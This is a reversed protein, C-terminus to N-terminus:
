VFNYSEAASFVQMVIPGKRPFILERGLHQGHAVEPLCRTEAMAGYGAFTRGFGHGIKAVQGWIFGICHQRTSYIHCFLAQTYQGNGTGM